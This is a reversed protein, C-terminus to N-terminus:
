LNELIEKIADAPLFGTERKVEIGDKLFVLTPVSMIDYETKLSEQADIDIKVFDYEEALEGISRSLMRCPGCWPAYFDLVVLGKGEVLKKFNFASAERLAMEM